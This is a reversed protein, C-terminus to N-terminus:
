GPEGAKQDAVAVRYKDRMSGAIIGTIGKSKRSELMLFMEECSVHHDISLEKTVWRFLWVDRGSSIEKRCLWLEGFGLASQLQGYFEFM